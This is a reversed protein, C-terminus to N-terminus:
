DTEVFTSMLMKSASPAASCSATSGPPDARVVVRVDRQELPMKGLWILMTPKADLVAVKFQARRRSARGNRKEEDVLRAFRRHLTMACCGLM